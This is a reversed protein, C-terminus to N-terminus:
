ATAEKLHRGVYLYRRFPHRLPTFTVLIRLALLLPALPRLPAALVRLIPVRFIFLVLLVVGITAIKATTYSLDVLWQNKEEGWNAQATVQAYM